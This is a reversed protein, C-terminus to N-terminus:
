GSKLLHSSEETLKPPTKSPNDVYQRTTFAYKGIIENIDEAKPYIQEMFTNQNFGTDMYKPFLNCITAM